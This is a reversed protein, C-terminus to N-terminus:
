SSFTLKTNACQWCNFYCKYYCLSHHMCCNSHRMCSNM